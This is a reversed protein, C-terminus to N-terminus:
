LLSACKIIATESRLRNEALKFKVASSLFKFEKDDFGGEPGFIFYYDKNKDILSKSFYRDSNQEFIIKEGNREAIDNMSLLEIQPLFSRLSQKMAALLIKQWRELKNGKSVSRVSDFVIFKTIGLETCKELAFEFRDHNKLKPLCFTLNQNEDKYIFEQKVLTEIVSKDITLIESLSIKGKGNTVYIEDGPSHRMVNKIHKCEEGEIIIKSGTFNQPSSYYLEINSLYEL